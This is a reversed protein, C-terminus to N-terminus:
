IIIHRYTGEDKKDLIRFVEGGWKTGKLVMRYGLYGIVTYEKGEKIVTDGVRYPGKTRLPQMRPDLKSVYCKKAKPLVDGDKFQEFNIVFGNVSKVRYIGVHRDIYHFSGVTYGNEAVKRRRDESEMVGIQTLVPFKYNDLLNKLENARSLLGAIENGIPSLREIEARLQDINMRQLDLKEQILENLRQHTEDFIDM